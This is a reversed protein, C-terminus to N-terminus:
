SVGHFRRNIEIENVDDGVLEAAIVGERMILVRDCLSALEEVDTSSVLVAAGDDRAKMIQRHLEAKAGVDVGQTPEDLLLVEPSLRLWKGLVIKQQNGGSFSALVARVGDAPRVQLREFWTRSEQIEAKNRLFGRRWFPKLNALTLNETADMHMFGGTVKRDPALYGIGAAMAARPDHPPVIVSGVAVSGSARDLAGFLVGLLSERGSGTLGYVGVIEGARARLSVGHLSDTRLDDVVLSASDPRQGTSQRRTRHVSELQTGVLRHVITARDINAVDCSEVLYGDRLVSVRNALRFVEDLHHTVYLIAVGRAATTRLMSHLHEVEETPLTATPEDLVLVAAPGGGFDVARAVAVGTRQAPSLGRVLTRPDNTMEVVALAAQARRYEDRGRITGLKTEYGRTFALNDLISSSAVLGLDQHVFRLGLRYSDQPSGFALPKGKVYCAGGEDPDHYGSLIKILTSKGSGNQGLLAHIEGPGIKLEFPQLVTRSGFTKALGAIHLASPAPITASPAGGDGGGALPSQENQKV